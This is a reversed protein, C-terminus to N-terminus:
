YNRESDSYQKAAQNHLRLLRVEDALNETREKYSELTQMFMTLKDDAERLRFALGSVQAQLQENEQKLKTIEMKYKKNFFM